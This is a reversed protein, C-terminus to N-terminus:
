NTLKLLKRISEEINTPFPLGHVKEDGLYVLSHEPNDPIWINYKGQWLYLHAELQILKKAVVASNNNKDNRAKFYTDKQLWELTKDNLPKLTYMTISRVISHLEKENPEMTNYEKSFIDEYGEDTSFTIKKRKYIYEYLQNRNKVQVNFAAWSAQLLSLLEILRARRDRSNNRVDIIWQIILKVVYGLAAIVAGIIAVGLWEPIKDISEM